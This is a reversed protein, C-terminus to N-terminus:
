QQEIGRMEATRTASRPDSELAPYGTMGSIWEATQELTNESRVIM